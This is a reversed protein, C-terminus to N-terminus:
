DQYRDICERIHSLFFFGGVAGSEGVITLFAMGDLVPFNIEAFQFEIMLSGSKGDGTTVLGYATFGTMWRQNEGFRADITYITMDINVGILEPSGAFIAM